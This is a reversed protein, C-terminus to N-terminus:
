NVQTSCRPKVMESILDISKSNTECHERLKLSLDKMAEMAEVVAKLHTSHGNVAEALQNFAQVMRHLNEAQEKHGVALQANQEALTKLAEGHNLIAAELENIRHQEENTM